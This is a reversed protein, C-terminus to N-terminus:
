PKSSSAAPAGVRGMEELIEVLELVEERSALEGEPRGAIRLFAENMRAGEEISVEGDREFRAAVASWARHHRDRDLESFSEPAKALVQSEMYDWQQGSFVLGLVFFLALPAFVVAPAASQAYTRWTWRPTADGPGTQKLSRCALYGKTIYLLALAHFALSMIQGNLLCFVADLAYPLGGLLFAPGFGRSAARGAAVFALAFIGELIAALVFSPGALPDPDMLLGMTLGRIFDAVGLGVVFYIGAGVLVLVSNLVTLGAIWYFWSAGHKIEKALGLPEAGADVTQSVFDYGCGCRVADDDSFLTCQPCRQM